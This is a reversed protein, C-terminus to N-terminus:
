ELAWLTERDHLFAKSNFLNFEASSKTKSEKDQPNAAVVRFGYINVIQVLDAIKGSRPCWTNFTHIYSM